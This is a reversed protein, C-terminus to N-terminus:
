KKIPQLLYVIVLLLLAALFLLGPIMSGEKQVNKIASGTLATSNPYVLQLEASVPMCIAILIIILVATRM